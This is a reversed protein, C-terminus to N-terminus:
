DLTSVSRERRSRSKALLRRVRIQESDLLRAPNRWLWKEMVEPKLPLKRFDRVLEAPRQGLLFPGSGYLVKDQITSQWLSTVARVGSGSFGTILALSINAEDLSALIAEDDCALRHALDRFAEVSPELKQLIQLYGLQPEPFHDAVHHMIEHAPAIPAWMDIIPISENVSFEKM